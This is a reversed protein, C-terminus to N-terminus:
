QDVGCRNRGTPLIAFLMVVLLTLKKGGREQFLHADHASDEHDQKGDVQELAATGEVAGHADHAPRKGEPSGRDQGEDVEDPDRQSSPHTNASSSTNCSGIPSCNM